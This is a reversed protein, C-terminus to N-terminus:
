AFHYRSNSCSKVTLIEIENLDFFKQANQM